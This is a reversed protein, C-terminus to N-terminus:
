RITGATDGGMAVITGSVMGTFFPSVSCELLPYTHVNRPHKKEDM